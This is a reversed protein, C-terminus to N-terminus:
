VAKDAKCRGREWERCPGEVEGGRYGPVGYEVAGGEHHRIVGCRLGVVSWGGGDPLVWLVGCWYPLRRRRVM